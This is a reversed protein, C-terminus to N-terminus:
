TLLPLHIGPVFTCLACCLDQMVLMGINVDEKPIFANLILLSWNFTDKASSEKKKKLFAILTM